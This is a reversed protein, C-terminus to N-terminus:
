RQLSPIFLIVDLSILFDILTQCLSFIIPRSKLEVQSTWFFSEKIQIYFFDENGKGPNRRVKFFFQLEEESLKIGNKAFLVFTSLILTYLHPALQM